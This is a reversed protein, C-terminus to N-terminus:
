PTRGPHKVQSPKPGPVHRAPPIPKPVLVTITRGDTGDNDTAGVFLNYHRGDPTATSRKAQLSLPFSFGYYYFTQNRITRHGIPAPTLTIDGRPEDDHYEDVVQFFAPPPKVDTAGIRGHILVSVQRGDFPPPIVQPTATVTFLGGNVAQLTRDELAGVEPLWRRRRAQRPHRPGDARPPRRLGGMIVM